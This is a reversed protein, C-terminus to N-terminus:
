KPAPSEAGYNAARASAASGAAEDRSEGFTNTDSAAAAPRAAAPATSAHQSCGLVGFTLLAFPVAAIMKM